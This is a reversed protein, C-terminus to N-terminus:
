PSQASERPIRPPTGLAVSCGMWGRRLPHHHGSQMRKATRRDAGTKARGQLRMGGVRAVKRSGDRCAPCESQAARTAETPAVGM